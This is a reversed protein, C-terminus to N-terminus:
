KSEKASPKRSSSLIVAHAPSLPPLDFSLDLTDGDGKSVCGEVALKDARNFGIERTSIRIERRVPADTLNFVNLVAAKETPHIHLHTTEDIGVFRGRAYFPRLRNYQAVARKYADYRAQNERPSNLGKKGGIGLHRVTSAYWWFALCADNDGEMTIHDYLPIECGLNYYYLCFARGSTLDAIPNWMFEFGWNEQYRNHTFGQRFYTPTYRVSWPWVPDHAEVLVAPYRARMGEILGCIARVHGEPTSPVPHGHNAEYCPGRWDFEDFMMFDVGGSTVALIRKLKERQWAKSQTCVEWFGIPVGQVSPPSPRRVPLTVGMTPSAAEYVELEDIRATGGVSAQVVVRVWRAAVPEFGFHRTGRIPEGEYNLIAKWLPSATEPAYEETVLLAFKSIARDNFRATHESGLAIGNVVHVAGLDVEAWSPDQGSVWSAPNNYYGDNLHAVSHLDPFGAIVSSANAVAQPLLALNRRGDAATLPAPEPQPSSSPTRPRTYDGAQGKRRLYWDKPFEDRYVRGITRYGLKLGFRRKLERSFDAVDGLREADWLTTGECVEWGPDLYLLDCGIDRAKAAENFLAERTYHQRLQAVNSHYWGVDFLENWNLPPAYDRPIAHGRQGLSERYLESARPWDGDFAMYRTVGFTITDGPPIHTVQRPERYLALGAGGFRMSARDGEREVAAMSYEIMENNYKAILLGHKGDTWAWAESRLKDSDSLQQDAVSDDNRWDSNSFRGALLDDNGYDHLKGDASRRYPVAVLRLASTDAGLAKRLGIALDALDLTHDTRNQLTIREELFPARSSLTFEQILRVESGGLAGSIELSSKQKGIFVNHLNTLCEGNSLHLAYVCPMDAWVLNAKRDALRLHVGARTSDAQLELRANHVVAARGPSTAALIFVVTGGLTRVDSRFERWARNLISLRGNVRAQAYVVCVPFVMVNLSARVGCRPVAGVSRRRRFSQRHQM